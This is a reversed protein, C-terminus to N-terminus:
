QYKVCYKNEIIPRVEIAQNVSGSAVLPQNPHGVLATVSGKASHVVRFPQSIGKRIDWRLFM